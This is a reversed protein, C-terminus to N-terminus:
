LRHDFAVPSRFRLDEYGLGGSLLISVFSRLVGTDPARNPEGSGFSAGPAAVLPLFRSLLLSILKLPIGFFKQPPKGETLKANCSACRSRGALSRGRQGLADAPMTRRDTPWSRRAAKTCHLIARQESAILFSLVLDDAPRASGTLSAIGVHSLFSEACRPSRKPTM